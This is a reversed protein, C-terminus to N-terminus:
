YHLCHNPRFPNSQIPFLPTDFRRPRPDKPGIGDEWHYSSLFNGGPWPLVPPHLRKVAALVDRRFGREDSLPSGEEYIGGYICRGLHEIFQGFIMPNVRATVEGADIRVHTVDTAAPQQGRLLGAAPLATLLTRRTMM